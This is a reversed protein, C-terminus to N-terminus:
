SAAGAGETRGRLSPLVPEGSAAGPALARQLLEVFPRAGLSELLPRAADTWARVDPDDPYAIAADVAVMAAVFSGGIERWLEIAERFAALADSPRGEAWHVGAAAWHRM